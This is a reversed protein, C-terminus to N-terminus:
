AKILNDASLLDNAKGAARLGIYHLICQQALRGWPWAVVLTSANPGV